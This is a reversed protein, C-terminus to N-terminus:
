NSFMQKHEKLWFLSRAQMSINYRVRGSYEVPPQKIRIGQGTM